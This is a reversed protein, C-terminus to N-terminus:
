GEGQVPGGQPPMLDEISDLTIIGEPAKLARSKLIYATSVLLALTALAGAEPGYGGGTLWVAGGQSLDFLRHTPFLEGSTPFSFLTTQSYNWAFHLGLPLWLSRTKMYAVCFWISALATNVTSFTTAGPNTVHVLAFLVTMLLTAPLFTIGQIVTQYFYGRFLAEEGLAGVAFFVASNVLVWVCGELSLGRWTLAIYGLSNEVVFIGAIMLLGLLCGMGFERFTGAHLHLGIAGFPKRNVFRTMVYSAALVAVATVLSFLFQNHPDWLIVPWGLLAAIGGTLVLFIAIRWGSRIEGHRDVFIRKLANM